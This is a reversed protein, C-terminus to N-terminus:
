AFCLVSCYESYESSAIQREAVELEVQYPPKKVSEAVPKASGKQKRSKRSTAKVVKEDRKAKAQVIDEYSMIKATGVKTAKTSKRIKKERNQITLAQNEEQLLACGTLSQEAANVIKQIHLRSEHEDIAGIIEDLKERMANLGSASTPTKPPVLPSDAQSPAHAQSFSQGAEDPPKAMSRLVRDPNLPFLGAKSWGAGINRPTMAAERAHSYLLTFHQKGITDAGGRFLREVQERYATKLPGFVAVDCPQLKHSTHSPLRCLTINNEFCFTMVELSEHSAFGDSILVRPKGGARAKTLPDFVNQIWYLAITSNSYGTESCAYHWGPTPHTTWTSRHTAAPWIVLPELCRGDGSICEVATILTRKSGVGRYNRMDNRGVLVKLSGLVSLLVGTEDMNYVNEPLIAPNAFEEGIMSFWDVTKQYITHDHRNWPMAKVRRAVLEPNRKYFGQPWNKGPQQVIGPPSTGGIRRRRIVPALSRLVKVPLPFGHKSMRLVYAALAKEENPTLYQEKAAKERRTCRGHDRYWKTTRPLIDVDDSPQADGIM